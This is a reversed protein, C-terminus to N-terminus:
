SRNDIMCPLMGFHYNRASLRLDLYARKRLGRVQRHGPYLLYVNIVYERDIGARGAIAYSLGSMFDLFVELRM